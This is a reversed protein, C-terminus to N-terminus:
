HPRVADFYDRGYEIPLSDLMSVLQENGVLSPSAFYILIALALCHSLPFINGRM